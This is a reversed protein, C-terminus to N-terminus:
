GRSIEPSRPHDRATEATPTRRARGTRTESGALTQGWVGWEAAVNLDGLRRHPSVPTLALAASYPQTRRSVCRFGSGWTQVRRREGDLRRQWVLPRAAAAGGRRQLLAACAEDWGRRRAHADESGGNNPTYTGLLDFREFSALIVRGETQHTAAAANPDLSHRLERPQECAAKVLLGTGAYKYEALSWYARYGHERVFRAIADAESALSHSARSLKDQQRRQGDGKKCGAPGLAPSRVESIFVVDPSHERLFRDLDPRNCQIRQILSNANWAALTRVHPKPAAPAADDEERPRKSGSSEARKFFSAISM